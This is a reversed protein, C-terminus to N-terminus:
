EFLTRGNANSAVRRSRRRKVPRERQSRETVPADVGISCKGAPQESDLNESPKSQSQKTTPAVPHVRDHKMENRSARRKGEATRPGTSKRGNARNAEIRRQSATGRVRTARVRELTSGAETTPFAISM